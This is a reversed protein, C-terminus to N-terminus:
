PMELLELPVGLWKAAAEREEFVEVNLPSHDTLMEHLKAYHTADASTVLFASKTAPHGSYTLRRYLAVHFVYKFNLEILDLASLDAFRLFPERLVSEQEGIFGIIRNVIEEDLLGRPKWVFLLPASHFAVDPPLKMKSM